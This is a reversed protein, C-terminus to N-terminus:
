EKMYQKLIININSRVCPGLSTTHSSASQTGSWIYLLHSGLWMWAELTRSITIRNGELPNPESNSWCVLSFFQSVKALEEGPALMLSALTFSQPPKVWDPLWLTKWECLAVQGNTYVIHVNRDLLTAVTSFVIKWDYYAQTFLKDAEVMVSSM